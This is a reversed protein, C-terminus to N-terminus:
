WLQIAKGHQPPQPLGVIRRHNHYRSQCLIEIAQAPEPQTGIVINDFREIRLFNHRPNLCHQAPAATLHILRCPPKAIKFHIEFGIRGKDM